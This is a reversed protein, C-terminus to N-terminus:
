YGLQTPTIEDPLKSLLSKGENVRGQLVLMHARFLVADVDDGSQILVREILQMTLKEWASKNINHIRFDIYTNIIQSKYKQYKIYGNRNEASGPNKLLCFDFDYKGSPYKLRLRIYNKGNHLLSYDVNLAVTAYPDFDSTEFHSKDLTIAECDSELDLCVYGWGNKLIKLVFLEDREIVSGSIEGEVSYTISSKKKVSILFEELNLPSKTKSLGRYLDLYQRDHNIFVEEFSDSYFVNYAEEFDELALNAFHFLNKIPGQSSLIPQRKRVAVFPITYEGCDSIICIDGKIIDGEEMGTGDFFYNVHISTGQFESINLRLRTSTSFIFGSTTHGKAADFSFAGGVETGPRADIEIRSEQMILRPKEYSFVGAALNTVNENMLESINYFHINDM